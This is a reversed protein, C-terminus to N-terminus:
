IYYHVRWFLRQKNPMNNTPLFSSLPDSLSSLPDSAMLELWLGVCYNYFLAAQGVPRVWYLSGGVMCGLALFWGWRDAVGVAVSGVIM